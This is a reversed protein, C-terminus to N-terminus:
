VTLIRKDSKIKMSYQKDEVDKSATGTERYIHGTAFLMLEQKKDKFITYIGDMSFLMVQMYIFRQTSRTMFTYKNEHISYDLLVVGQDLDTFIRQYIGFVNILVFLIGVVIVFVRSKVKVADLFVFCTVSLLYLLGTVPSSSTAPRAIDISWKCLGFVVIIVVQTEQLLRKATVLSVNKYYLVGLLYLHLLVLYLLLM